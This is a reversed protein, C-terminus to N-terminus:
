AREAGPGAAQVDLQGAVVHGLAATAPLRQELGLGGVGVLRDAVRPEVAGLRELEGEQDGLHQALDGSGDLGSPRKRNRGSPYAVPMLVERVARTGPAELPM